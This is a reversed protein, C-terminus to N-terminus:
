KTKRKRIIRLVIENAAEHCAQKGAGGQNCVVAIALDLDSFLWVTCYNFTNSGDHTLVRGGRLSVWGGTAYNSDVAAAHIRKYTKAKLLGRKGRAGRLQDILFKSYDTLTANVGGAPRMIPPNDAAPGPTQPTGNANHSWPQKVNKASGVAGFGIRKMGLPKFVETAMLSEWPTKTVREAMAAAVVYSVNSYVFKKGPEALLPDRVTSAVFRLRQKMPADKTNYQWWGGKANSPLGSRHVMLQRLTIRDVNKAMLKKLEPFTEALTQDWRLKGQEVLRAVVAATLTKTNSGIHFRDRFTVKTKDGRKRVGVAAVGQLGKSSVVAAALAPVNHKKRITELLAALQKDPKVAPKKDEGAVPVVMASSALVVCFLSSLTDNM